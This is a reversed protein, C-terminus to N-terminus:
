TRRAHRAIRGEMSSLFSTATFRGGNASPLAVGVPCPCDWLHIDPPLMLCFCHVYRVVFRSYPRPFPTSCAHCLSVRYGPFGKKPSAPRSVTLLHTKGLSAVSIQHRLIGYANSFRASYSFGFCHPPLPHCICPYYQPTM